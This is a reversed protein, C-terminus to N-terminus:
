VRLANLDARLTHQGEHEPVLTIRVGYGLADAVRVLTAVEINESSELQQIRARSVGAETGVDRLSLGAEARARALLEGVTATVVAASLEDTIREPTYGKAGAPIQSGSVIPDEGAEALLQMFEDDPLEDLRLEDRVQQKTKKMM